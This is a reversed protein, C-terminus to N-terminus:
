QAHDDGNINVQQGGPMNINVQPAPLNLLRRVRALEGIARLYRRQAGDLRQEWFAIIEMGMEQEWLRSQQYEILNLHLYSLVVQDILLRELVTPAPGSLEDRLSEMRGLQVVRSIDGAPMVSVMATIAREALDFARGAEPARALLKRLADHQEKTAGSSIAVRLAEAIDAKTPTDGRVLQDMRRKRWQRKHQHYGAAELAARLLDGVIRRHDLLAAPPATEQDLRAMQQRRDMREMQRREQDIQDLAAALEGLVGAGCYTYRIRKGHRQSQYYYRKGPGKWPM